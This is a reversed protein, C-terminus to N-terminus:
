YIRFSYEYGAEKKVNDINKITKDYGVPPGIAIWAALNGIQAPM